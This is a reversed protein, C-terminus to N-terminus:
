QNVPAWPRVLADMEAVDATPTGEGRTLFLVPPAFGEGGLWRYIAGRSSSCAGKLWTRWVQVRGRDDRARQAGATRRLVDMAELLPEEQLMPDGGGGRTGPGRRVGAGTGQSEPPTQKSGGPRVAGGTASSAVTAAPRAGMAANHAASRTGRPHVGRSADRTGAGHKQQQACLRTEAILPETGRGPRMATPEAPLPTRSDMKAPDLQPEALALLVEEATWTWYGWAEDVGGRALVGEWPSALPGLLCETMTEMEHQGRRPIDLPPPKVFRIVHQAAAELGIEFAAPVHGPIAM